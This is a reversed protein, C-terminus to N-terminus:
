EKPLRKLAEVAKENGNQAAHEFWFRARQQNRQEPGSALLHAFEFQGMPDGNQAAIRLWYRSEVQDPKVHEYYLYLRMASGPSGALADMQVRKIETENLFHHQEGALLSKGTDEKEVVTMEQITNLLSAAYTDGQDAAKRLWFGARHRNRQGHYGDHMTKGLNYLASLEGNEAGIELWLDAEKHKRRRIRYEWELDRSAETSGRLAQESLILIEAKPTFGGQVRQASADQTLIQLFILGGFVVIMHSVAKSTKM